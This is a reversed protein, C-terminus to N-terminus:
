SRRARVTLSVTFTYRAIGTTPDPDSYLGSVEEVGRVLPMGTYENFLATRCEQALDSATVTDNSSSGWAQVTIQAQELVRSSAAGGTRWARVFSAPRPNMVRTAVPPGVKSNLFTAVMTEVDSLVPTM